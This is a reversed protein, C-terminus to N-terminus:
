QALLIIPSSIMPFQKPNMSNLFLVLLCVFWLISNIDTFSPNKYKWTRDHVLGEMIHGLKCNIM